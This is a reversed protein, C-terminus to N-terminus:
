EKELFTRRFIVPLIEAREYRNSEGSSLHNERTSSERLRNKGRGNKEKPHVFGEGHYGVAV